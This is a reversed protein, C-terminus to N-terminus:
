KFIREIFGGLALFFNQVKNVVDQVALAMSFEDALFEAVIVPHSKLAFYFEDVVQKLLHKLFFSQISVTALHFM